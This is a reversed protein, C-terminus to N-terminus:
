SPTWPLVSMRLHQMGFPVFTVAFPAGCAGEAACAPSAPPAAASGHALGWAPIQRAMATIQLPPASHDFPQSANVSGTRAFTLYPSLDAKSPDVVLAVNWTTTSNITYDAVEPHDPAPCEHTATVNTTEGLSMGYTLAGRHVTVAGNYLVGVSDLFIAPNMEVHATQALAGTGANAGLGPILFMTGNPGMPVAASSMVSVNAATAWSPVRIWVPVSGAPTVAVGIDLSDGFPYDTTVTLAVSVGANPGLLAVTASLPGLISIAVGGDPTAHVMRPVFRPWGQPGNATCCPYNPALGFTTADPGDALWIHDDQHLANVANAQQLYQHGWMDSSWTGPLANYAIREARDAFNADGLNEHMVNLSLISEVVACLETGHSPMSDSLTEDAQFVGTPAGHFKELLEVRSSSSARAFPSATMRWLVAGSKLGEGTNVGHSSFNWPTNGLPFFEPEFWQEWVVEQQAAVLWLHATLFQREGLADTPDADMITQILWAYDQWRAGSWAVLPAHNALRNYSEHLHKHIAPLVRADGTFEWHQYLGFIVLWKAWEANGDGPDTPPGIWGTVPDAQTIFTTVYGQIRKCLARACTPDTLYALPVAAQFWYGFDEGENTDQCGGPMTCNSIWPSYAIPPYFLDLYGAMGAAEVQLQQALWGAPAVAGLKLPVFPQPELNLWSQLRRGGKRHGLLKDWTRGTPIVVDPSDYGAAVAAVPAAAAAAAAVQPAIPIEFPFVPNGNNDRVAAAPWPAYAYQLAEVGPCAAGSRPLHVTIVLGKGDASLTPANANYWRENDTKDTRVRWSQCEYSIWLNNADGEPVGAPCVITPDIVLGAAVSAADFSVSVTTVNTSPDSSVFAATPSSPPLYPANTAGYLITAAARALRQGVQTKNRSFQWTFPSTLDALDGSMVVATRPGALGQQVGRMMPVADTWYQAGLPPLQVVGLFGAAGLATASRLEAVFAPLACTWWATNKDSVAMNANSEGQWLLTGALSLQAAPAVLAGFLDGPAFRPATPPNPCAALTAPGAWAELPSGGAGAVVIGIPAAAAAPALAALAAAFSFGLASFTTWNGAGVVAASSRTWALAPPCSAFACGAQFLRVTPGLADAQAILAAADTVSAVTMLANGEGLLAFVDGFAVDTLALSAGAAASFATLTNSASGAAGPAVRVIWNGGADATASVNAGGNLSVSVTDGPAATGFVATSAGRQLVMSSGFLPSLAFPLAHALGAGAALALLLRRQVM